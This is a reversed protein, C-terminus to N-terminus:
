ATAAPDKIIDIGALEMDLDFYIDEVLIKIMNSIGEDIQKRLRETRVSKNM